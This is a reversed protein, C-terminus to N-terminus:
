NLGCSTANSSVYFGAGLHFLSGLGPAVAVTFHAIILSAIVIGVAIHTFALVGTVTTRTKTWDPVRVDPEEETYM